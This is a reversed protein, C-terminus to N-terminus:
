ENKDNRLEIQKFNYELKSHNQMPPKKFINNQSEIHKKAINRASDGKAINRASDGKSNQRIM